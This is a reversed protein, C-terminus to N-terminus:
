RGRPLKLNAQAVRYTGETPLPTVVCEWVDDFPQAGDCPRFMVRYKFRLEKQRDLPMPPGIYFFGRKRQGNETVVTDIRIWPSDIM